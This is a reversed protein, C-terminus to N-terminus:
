PDKTLLPHKKLPQLHLRTVKFKDDKQLLLAQVLQLWLRKMLPLCDESENGGRSDINKIKELRFAAQDIEETTYDDNLIDEKLQERCARLTEYTDRFQNAQTSTSGPEQSAAWADEM